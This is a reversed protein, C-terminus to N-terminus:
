KCRDNGVGSGLLAEADAQKDRVAFNSGMAAEAVRKGEVAAEKAKRETLCLALLQDHDLSHPDLEEESAASAGTSQSM